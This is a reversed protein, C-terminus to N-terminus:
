FISPLDVMIRLSVTLEDLQYHPRLFAAVRYTGPTDEVEKVDLRAERLPYKAKIEQGANDDLLVYQNIWRNLYTEIDERGMFTGIKDRMISIFYHAFRSLSFVYPLKIALRANATAEESDYVVTKGLTQTSFFAAYDTGSCHVLPIFGLDSLDKERRDSIGIETPCKLAIDGKDTEFTHVPLGEVLGGGEVGRIAACWHYRAFADTVRSAMAYAANGWLFNTHDAGDVVEEFEFDEVPATASGYPLRMLIHPLVLCIYRANESERFSRWRNYESGLFIKVLDGPQGLQTYDELGFLRPSAAAIFPAHAAAAVSSINEILAMDKQGHDIEFDGILVGYPTGGFIGFEESVIKKYTYSLNFENAKEIDRILEKKAVNMVRIKLSESTESTMVLYHLGRWSSELKQFDPHHMIENLQDSIQRDIHSIRDQIMTEPDKDGEMDGNMMQFAVEGMLEGIKEQEAQDTDPVFKNMLIPFLNQEGMSEAEIPFSDLWKVSEEKHTLSSLQMLMERSGLVVQLLEVLGGNGDLHALLEALRQRSKVFREMPPVQAALREPHFDEMSKFRLDVQIMATSDNGSRDTVAFVLVPAIGSMVSNFTDRDIEIFKRDRYMPLDFSSNGSLDALVGVVFPLEIQKFGDGDEIDYTLNVKPARVQNLRHTNKSLHPSLQYNQGLVTRIEVSGQIAATLEELEQEVNEGVRYPAQFAMPTLAEDLDEIPPLTAGELLVPIIKLGQELAKIFEVRFQHMSSTHQFKSEPDAKQFRDQTILILMVHSRKLASEISTAFDQNTKTVDPLAVINEEGFAAKLESIIDTEFNSPNDISQSVYIRPAIDVITVSESQIRFRRSNSKNGNEWHLELLIPNTRPLEIQHAEPMGPTGFEVAGQVLRVGFRAMPVDEPTLWGAWEPIDAPTETVDFGDPEVLRLSMGLAMMQGEESARVQEPLRVFARAAWEMLNVRQPQIMTALISRLLDKMEQERGSLALWTLKEEAFVAPSIHRHVSEVVQWARDLRSPHQALKKGLLDRVKQHLVVGAPNRTEVLDSLWLDAESGADANPMLMLRVKRLLGSEVRVALSVLEALEVAQPNKSVLRSIVKEPNKLPNLRWSDQKGAQSM